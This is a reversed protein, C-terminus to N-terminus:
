DTTENITIKNGNSFLRKRFALIILIFVLGFIMLRYEQEPIHLEKSGFSRLFFNGTAHIATVFVISNTLYYIVGVLSFLVTGLLIEILNIDRALGHIITFLFSCIIIGAIIGYTKILRKQFYGRFVVEQWFANALAILILLVISNQSFTIDLNNSVMQSGGDFLLSFLFMLGM